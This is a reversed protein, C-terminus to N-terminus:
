GVPNQERKLRHLRTFHPGSELQRNDAGLEIKELHRVFWRRGTERRVRARPRRACKPPSKQESRPSFCHEPM